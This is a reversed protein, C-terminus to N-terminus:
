QIRVAGSATMPYNGLFFKGQFTKDIRLRLYRATEEGLDCSGEYHAEVVNDCERWRQVTVNGRPVGAAAAAETVLHSFDVDEDDADGELPGAQLLELSRSVAQQLTFRESLGQGLDIIGTLFVVLLPVAFALEVLSAGRQDLALRRGAARLPIAFRRM